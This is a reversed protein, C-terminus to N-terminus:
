RNKIQATAFTARVYTGVPKKDGVYNTCFSFFVSFSCLALIM